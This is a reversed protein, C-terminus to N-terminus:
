YVFATIFFNSTSILTVISRPAEAQPADSGMAQSEPKNLLKSVAM